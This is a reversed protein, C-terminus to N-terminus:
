LLTIRLSSAQGQADHLTLLYLGAPLDGRLIVLETGRLPPYRRVRQGTLSYLEVHYPKQTPNAFSLVARDSLPNPALTLAPGAQRNQLRTTQTCTETIDSMLIFYDRCNNDPTFAKLNAAWADAPVEVGQNFLFNIRNVESLGFYAEVDPIYTVFHNADRKHAKVANPDDWNAPSGWTENVDASGGAQFGLTNMGGLVTNALNGGQCAATWDVELQIGGRPDHCATFIPDALDFALTIYDGAYYQSSLPAVTEYNTGFGFASMAIACNSGAFNGPDNGYLMGVREIDYMAFWSALDAKLPRLALGPDSKVIHWVTEMRTDYGGCVGTTTLSTSPTNAAFLMWQDGVLGNQPAFTLPESIAQQLKSEWIGIFVDDSRDAYQAFAPDGGVTPAGSSVWGGGVLSAHTQPFLGLNSSLTTGTGENCDFQFMLAYSTEIDSSNLDLHMWRQIQEQTRQKGWIRIQDMKGEFGAVGFELPQSSSSAFYNNLTWQYVEEGNVYLHFDNTFGENSMAIHYWQNPEIVNPNTEIQGSAAVSTGRYRFVLKGNSVYLQYSNNENQIPNGRRFLPEYSVSPGMKVWMEVCLGTYLNFSNNLDQTSPIELYDAAGLSIAQGGNQALSLTAALFLALSLILKKM